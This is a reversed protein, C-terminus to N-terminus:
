DEDSKSSECITVFMGGEKKIRVEQGERMEMLDEVTPIDDFDLFTLDEISCLVGAVDDREVRGIHYECRNCEESRIDIGEFHSCPIPKKRIKAYFYM